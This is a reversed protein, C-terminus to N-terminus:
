LTNHQFHKSEGGSSRGSFFLSSLLNDANQLTLNEGNVIVKDIACTGIPENNRFLTVGESNDNITYSITNLPHTFTDDGYKIKASKNDTIIQM